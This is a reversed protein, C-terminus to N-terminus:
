VTTASSSHYDIADSFGSHPHSQTCASWKM